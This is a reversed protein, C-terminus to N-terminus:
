LIFSEILEMIKLINVESKGWIYEMYPGLFSWFLCFFHVQAPNFWSDGLFPM